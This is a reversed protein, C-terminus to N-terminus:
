FSLVTRTQFFTYCIYKQLNKPEDSPYVRDKYYTKSTGNKQVNISQHSSKLSNQSNKKQGFTSSRLFYQRKEFQAFVFCMKLIYISIYIYNFLGIGQEFFLDGMCLRQRCFNFQNFDLQSFKGRLAFSVYGGLFM